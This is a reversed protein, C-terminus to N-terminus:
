GVITYVERTGGQVMPRLKAYFAQWEPTSMAKIMDREYTALDAHESEMVLRYYEGTLDTMMKPRTMGLSTLSSDSQKIVEKAAKMQMPDIKLVDRVLIM